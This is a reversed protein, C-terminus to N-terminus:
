KKNRRKYEKGNICKFGCNQKCYKVRELKPNNANVFVDNIICNKVPLKKTM